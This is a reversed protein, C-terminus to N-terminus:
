LLKLRDLIMYSIDYGRIEAKSLMNRYDHLNLKVVELFENPNLDLEKIKECETAVFAHRFGTSYPSYRIKTIFQIDGTYGTEELLERAAAKGPAEGKEMGGGPLELSVEETTPRYQRVLVVKKDKTIPLIQVSDKDDDVLFNEVLGNPLQVKKLLFSRSYEDDYKINVHKEFLKKYPKIPM